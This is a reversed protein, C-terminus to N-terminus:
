NCLKRVYMEKINVIFCRHANVNEHCDRKTASCTFDVKLNPDMKASELTCPCNTLNESKVTENTKTNWSRCFEKIAGKGSHGLITPIFSLLSTSYIIELHRTRKRVAVISLGFQLQAFSKTVQKFSFSGKEFESEMVKFANRPISRPHEHRPYWRPVLTKPHRQFLWNEISFEPVNSKNFDDKNLEETNWNVNYETDHEILAFQAQNNDDFVRLDPDKHLAPM